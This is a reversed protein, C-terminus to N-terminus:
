KRHARIGPARSGSRSGPTPEFRLWGYGEFYLEPWAHADRSRVTWIDRDQTGPLFGMALRAPIGRSRAMLVMATAFHTCYGRKTTLFSTVMDAGPTRPGPNLSYIFGGDSRLWDQIAVAQEWPTRASATVRNTVETVLTESRPDLQLERDQGPGPMATALATRDPAVAIYDVSYHDLRDRTFLDGTAPDILLRGNPVAISAAPQPAAVHPQRLDNSEVQFTYTTKGWGPQLPRLSTSTASPIERTGQWQDDTFDIASVVKIAAPAPANTRYTLVIGDGGERLARDLDVSSNFGITGGEGDSSRGLGGALFRTPTDPLFNPVVLAGVLGSFAVWRGMRGFANRGDGSGSGPSSGIGVRVSGSTSWRDVRGYSQRALLALWAGAAFVFSPWPLATSRNAAAALFVVLLAFGSAAPAARTVAIADVVLSVLAYAAILLITVGENTPAPAASTQIVTVASSVLAQFRRLTEGTPLGYALTSGAGLALVAGIWVLVQAAVVAPAPASLYRLLAGLAVILLSTVLGNFVWGNGDFLWTVPLICAVVALQGLVADLARIRSM